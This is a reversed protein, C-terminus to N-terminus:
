EATKILNNVADVFKTAHIAGMGDYNKNRETLEEYVFTQSIKCGEVEVSIRIASNDSDDDMTKEILVDHEELEIIKCWNKM